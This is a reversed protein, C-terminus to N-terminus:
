SITSRFVSPMTEISSTTQVGNHFELHVASIQTPLITTQYPKKMIPIPSHINNLSYIFNNKISMQRKTM